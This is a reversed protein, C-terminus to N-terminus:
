QGSERNLPLERSSKVSDNDTGALRKNHGIEPASLRGFNPGPYLPLAM